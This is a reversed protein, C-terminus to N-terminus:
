SVAFPTSNQRRNKRSTVLLARSSYSFANRGSCIFCNLLSSARSSRLRSASLVLVDIRADSDEGHFLSIPTLSRGAYRRHFRVKLWRPTSRALVAIVLSAILRRSSLSKRRVLRARTDASVTPSGVAGLRRVGPNRRSSTACNAPILAVQYVHSSCARGTLTEVPVRQCDQERKAVRHWPAPAVTEVPM